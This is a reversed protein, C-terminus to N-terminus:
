NRLLDISYHFISSIFLYNGRDVLQLNLFSIQQVRNSFASEMMPFDNPGFSALVISSSDYAMTSPIRAVGIFL